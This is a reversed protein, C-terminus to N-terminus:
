ETRMGDKINFTTGDKLTLIGDPPLIAHGRENMIMVAGNNRFIVHQGDNLEAIIATDDNASKRMSPTLNTIPDPTEQNQKKEDVPEVRKQMQMDVISKNALDQAMKNFQKFDKEEAKETVSAGTSNWHEDAEKVLKGESVLRRVEMQLANNARQMETNVYPKGNNFGASPMSVKPAAAPQAAGAQTQNTQALAGSAVMSVTIVFASLYLRM